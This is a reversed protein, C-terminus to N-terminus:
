NLRTSKRDPLLEDRTQQKLRRKERRSPEEQMRARYEELRAELADDIAAAPLLRSQSRLRLLDAGAVRRVLLPSADAAPPEWGASREAYAGCPQFATLALRGSLAEESDPWDSSLKYLRVSRFM